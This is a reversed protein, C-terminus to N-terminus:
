RVFAAIIGVLAIFIVLIVFVLSIFQQQRQFAEKLDKISQSLLSVDKSLNNLSNNVGKITELIEGITMGSLETFYEIDEARISDQHQYRGEYEKKAEELLKYFEITCFPEKYSLVAEKPSSNFLVLTLRGEFGPDVQPGALLVLGKRAFYSRLGISAAVRKSLKIKEYTLVIAFEGPPIRLLGAKEIDIKEKRSSLFAEKGLRMDYSAPKLCSEDFGEIHIDGRKIFELILQDSLM